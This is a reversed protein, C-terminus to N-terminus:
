EGDVGAVMRLAAHKGSERGEYYALEGECILGCEEQKVRMASAKEKEAELDLLRASDAMIFGTDTGADDTCVISSRSLKERVVALALEANRGEQVTLVIVKPLKTNV